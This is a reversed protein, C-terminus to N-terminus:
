LLPDGVIMKAHTAGGISRSYWGDFRKFLDPANPDPHRGHWVIDKGALLARVQNEDTIARAGRSLSAYAPKGSIEGWWNGIGAISGGPSRLEASKTKYEAAAASSGDNAAGGLKNGGPGPKGFIGVDIDPDEDINEVIWYLYRDLSEPSSVKSHGDIDEYTTVVMDYLQQKVIERRPDGTQLLVWEGKPLELDLQKKKEEPDPWYKADETEQRELQERIIKRIHRGTIIM